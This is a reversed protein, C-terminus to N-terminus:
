RLWFSVTLFYATLGFVALANARLLRWNPPLGAAINRLLGIQLLAFPLSIFAPWLVRLSLGFLPAAALLLYAAALLAHHFPIARQWGLVTLLTRREYKQDAAFAPFDMAICYALAIATLPATVFGLLRHYDQAQLVFAIAPIIYALHVALLFEGFGRELLRLPPVSRLLVVFVSCAVLLFPTASLRSARYLVFIVLALAALAAISLYLANSRLLERESPTQEPLIPENVPRFVEALLNMGLQALCMALLGLWFADARFPLGLYNAIGAGLLYTFAALLIHV